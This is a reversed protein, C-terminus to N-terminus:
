IIESHIIQLSFSFLYNYNITLKFKRGREREEGNGTTDVEMSTENSEKRGLLGNIRCTEYMLDYCMVSGLSHAFMSVTGGSSIFHPNRRM